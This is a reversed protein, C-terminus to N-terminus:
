LVHSQSNFFYDIKIVPYFSLFTFNLKLFDVLHVFFNISNYSVLLVLINHKVSHKYYNFDKELCSKNYVKHYGRFTIALVYMVRDTEADM